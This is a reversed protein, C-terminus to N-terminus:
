KIFCSKPTAVVFNLYSVESFVVLLCLPHFPGTKIHIMWLTAVFAVGFGFSILAIIVVVYVPIGESIRCEEDRKDSTIAISCERACDKVFSRRSPNSNAELVINDTFSRHAHHHTDDDQPETANASLIRLRERLSVSLTKVQPLSPLRRAPKACFSSARPCM